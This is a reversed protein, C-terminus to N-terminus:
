MTHPKCRTQPHKWLVFIWSGSLRRAPCSWSQLRNPPIKGAFLPKSYWNIVVSVNECCSSLDELSQSAWSRIDEYSETTEQGNSQPLTFGPAETIASITNPEVAGVPGAVCCYFVCVCRSKSQKQNPFPHDLLLILTGFGFSNNVQPLWSM